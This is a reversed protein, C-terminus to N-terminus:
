SQTVTQTFLSCTKRELRLITWAGTALWRLQFTLRSQSSTAPQRQQGAKRKETAAWQLKSKEAGAASFFAGGSVGSVSASCDSVWEEGLELTRTKGAVEAENRYGQATDLHRVGARLATLVSDRAVARDRRNAPRSIVRSRRKM